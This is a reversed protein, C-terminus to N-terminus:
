LSKPGDLSEVHIISNCHNFESCCDIVAKKLAICAREFWESLSQIRFM